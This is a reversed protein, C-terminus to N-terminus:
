LIKSKVCVYWWSNVQLFVHLEDDCVDVPLLTLWMILITYNTMWGKYKIYIVTNKSSVNTPNDHTNSFQIYKFQLYMPKYIYINSVQEPWDDAVLPQDHESVRWEDGTPWSFCNCENCLKMQWKSTTIAVYCLYEFKIIPLDCLLM